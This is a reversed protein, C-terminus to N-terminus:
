STWRRGGKAEETRLAAVQAAAFDYPWTAHKRSNCQTCIPRLNAPWNSGGKVLPIVHDTAEAPGGCIYCTHGYVEWRAAIQEATADGDANQIRARRHSQYACREEPNDQFWKRTQTNAQEKNKTHWERNYLHKRGRNKAYWERNYLRWRDRNKTRYEHSQVNKCEKCYDALGNKRAKNKHFEM